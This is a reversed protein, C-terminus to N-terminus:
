SQKSAVLRMEEGLEITGADLADLIADKSAREMSSDDHSLQKVLQSAALGQPSASVACVVDDASVTVKATSKAAM